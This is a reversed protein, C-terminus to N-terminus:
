MMTKSIAKKFKISENVKWTKNTSKNGKEIQVHKKSNKKKSNKKEVWKWNKKIWDRDCKPNREIKKKDFPWM